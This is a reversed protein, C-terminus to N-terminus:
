IPEARVAEIESRIKAVDPDVYDAIKESAADIKECAQISKDLTAKKASAWAGISQLLIQFVKKKYEKEESVFTDEFVDLETQAATKKTNCADLEAKRKREDSSGPSKRATLRYKKEAEKQAQSAKELNTKLQIERKKRERYTQSMPGIQQANKRIDATPLAVDRKCSALESYGTALESLTQTNEPPATQAFKTMLDGAVGRQAYDTECGTIMCQCATMLEEFEPFPRLGVTERIKNLFGFM